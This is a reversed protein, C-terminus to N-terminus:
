NWGFLMWMTQRDQTEGCGYAWCEAKIRRGANRLEGFAKAAKEAELRVEKSWAGKLEYITGAFEVMLEAKRYAEEATAAKEFWIFDVSAM